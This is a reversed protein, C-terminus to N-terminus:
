ATAPQDFYRSETCGGPYIHVAQADRVLHSRSGRELQFLHQSSVEPVVITLPTRARRGMYGRFALDDRVGHLVPPSALHVPTM